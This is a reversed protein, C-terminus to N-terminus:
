GSAEWVLAAETTAAEIMQAFVDRVGPDDTDGTSDPDFRGWRNPPNMARYDDPDTDWEAVIMTLMQLGYPGPRGDLVQWWSSPTDFETARWQHSRSGPWFEFAFGARRMAEHIMPTTNSTYNWSKSAWPVGPVRLTVEWSM